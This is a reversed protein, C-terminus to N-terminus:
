LSCKFRSELVGQEIADQELLPLVVLAKVLTMMVQYSNDDPGLMM